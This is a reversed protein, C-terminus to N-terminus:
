VCMLSIKKGKKIHIDQNFLNHHDKSVAAIPHLRVRPFAKAIGNGQLSQPQGEGEPFMDRSTIGSATLEPM